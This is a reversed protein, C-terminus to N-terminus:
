DRSPPPLGAEKLARDLDARTQFAGTQIGVSGRSYRAAMKQAAAEEESAVERRARDEFDLGLLHKVTHFFQM